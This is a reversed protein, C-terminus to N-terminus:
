LADGILDYELADTIRVRTPQGVLVGPRDPGTRVFTLGDVEPAQRMSRGEFLHPESQSEILIPLTQGVMATLNDASIQM